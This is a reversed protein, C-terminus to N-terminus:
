PALHGFERRLLGYYVEDVMRGQILYHERLYGEERFGLGTLLRRSAWNDQAVFAVLRTLETERFILEILLKVAAKGFGKGQFAEAITYGIEGHQMRWSVNKLSLQGIAIGGKEVIWRYGNQSRDSFNLGSEAIIKRIEELSLDDLPNFRKTTEEQRWTLMTEADQITAFRVELM